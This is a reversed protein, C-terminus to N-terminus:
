LARMQERYRAIVIDKSKLAESAWLSRAAGIPLGDVESAVGVFVHMQGDAVRPLRLRLDALDCCAVLLDLNGDIADAAISRARNIAYVDTNRVAM